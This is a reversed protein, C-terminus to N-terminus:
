KATVRIDVTRQGSDECLWDVMANISSAYYHGLECVIKDNEVYWDWIIWPEASHEHTYALVKSGDQSIDIVTAGNPLKDLIKVYSM